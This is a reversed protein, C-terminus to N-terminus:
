PQNRPSAICRHRGVQGESVSQWDFTTDGQNQQRRSWCAIQPESTPPKVYETSGAAPSLEGDGRLVAQIEERVWRPGRIMGDKPATRRNVEDGSQAM